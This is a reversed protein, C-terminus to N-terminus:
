PLDRVRAHAGQHHSAPRFKLVQELEGGRGKVFGRARTM